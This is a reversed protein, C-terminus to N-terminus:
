GNKSRGISTRYVTCLIDNHNASCNCLHSYPSGGILRLSATKGGRRQHRERHLGRGGPPHPRPRLWECRHPQHDGPGCQQRSHPQTLSKTFWCFTKCLWWAKHSLNSFQFHRDKSLHFLMRKKKCCIRSKIGQVITERVKDMQSGSMSHTPIRTRMTWPSLSGSRELWRTSWSLFTM